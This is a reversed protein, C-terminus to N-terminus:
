HGPCEGVEAPRDGMGKGQMAVGREILVAQDPHIKKLAEDLPLFEAADVEWSALRPVSTEDAEGAFGWIEKRSKKYQCSGIAVLKGCTVGTEELLERRATAEREEGPEPEGKPISWPAHRNYNGSPHVLLVQVVGNLRCLLVVGAASKM